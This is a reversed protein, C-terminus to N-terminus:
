GIDASSERACLAVDDAVDAVSGDNECGVHRAWIYFEPSADPGSGPRDGRALRAEFNGPIFAPVMKAGEIVSPCEAPAPLDQPPRAMLMEEFASQRPAGFTFVASTALKGECWAEGRM